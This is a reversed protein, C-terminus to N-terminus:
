PACLILAGRKAPIEDALLINEGVMPFSDTIAKISTSLDRQLEVNGTKTYVFKGVYTVHGEQVVFARDSGSLSGHGNFGSYVYHGAPVDFAFYKETGAIAEVSAKTRNFRWCDGTIKQEELSYEDLSVAFRSARWIGEVAIGYVLVARGAGTEGGNTLLEVSNLLLACGSLTIIIALFALNELIRRM